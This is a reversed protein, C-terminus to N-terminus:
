EALTSIGQKKLAKMRIAIKERLSARSPVLDTAELRKQLDDLSVKEANIHYTM